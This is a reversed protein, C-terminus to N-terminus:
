FKYGLGVNLVNVSNTITGLNIPWNTRYVQNNNVPTGGASVCTPTNIVVGGAQQPNCQSGALAEIGNPGYNTENLYFVHEYGFSVELAARREQSKPGVELEVHDDARADIHITKSWETAGAEKTRFRYAASLPVHVDCPAKCVAKWSADGVSSELIVSPDGKVHVLVTPEGPPSPTPPGGSAPTETSPAEGAAPAAPPPAATATVVTAVTGHLGSGMVTKAGLPFRITTGFAFGFRSSGAFDINQYQPNQGNSEFFGGARVAWRDRLINYDGGVRVGYVDKYGHPIDANPPATSTLGPGLNVPISGQYPNNASGPFRIQLDQFTSNNAWTLDAEIDFVDQSMPDRLHEDYDVDSRRKHYRFGVKAEMPVNITVKANGGNGCADAKSAPANAIGCDPVGTNGTAVAGTQGRAVALSFDNAATQADGTANIPASWKFWGAIDFDDTPSLLTGVTFGPFFWDHVTLDTKVDNQAPSLHDGNVAAVANAFNLRAIGWEFSAGVRVRKLVEIGIGITPTLVLANGDLLMYRQPGPSIAGNSATVFQPYNPSAAGASPALVPMIGIGIRDTVHLTFAVQPDIAPVVSNCVKPYFQGPVTGDNTTDNAAKLRGFCTSQFNINSSLILRTPQGALGAPNYFAALPDSARAIWAGGRGGQESGNDPFETVGTAWAAQSLSLIALAASTIAFARRRLSMRM